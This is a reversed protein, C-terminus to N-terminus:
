KQQNIQQINKHHFFWKNLKCALYASGSGILAGAIVDSPYHVGLHMRSYGVAAAWAFAPAIIYWKPYAISVSTALAFADSTHGSPFDYSGGSSIDQIEPYTVFPRERKVTKKLITTIVASVIVTTGISIAKRKTTSDKELYGVGYLIIPVGFAIPSASNTILKFPKDLSTNRNVNIKRLTNIDWNQSHSQISLFLVTICLLIKKM